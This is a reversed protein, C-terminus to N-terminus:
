GQPESTAHGDGLAVAPAGTAHGDGLTTPAGTAHGDQPLVPAPKKRKDPRIPAGTAHGDLSRIDAETVTDEQPEIQATQNDAM